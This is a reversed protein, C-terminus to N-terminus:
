SPIVKTIAKAATAITDLAEKIISPIPTTTTTKTTTTTLTTAPPALIAKTTSPPSPTATAPDNYRIVFAKHKEIKQTKENFYMLVLQWQATYLEELLAKYIPDKEYPAQIRDGAAYRVTIHHKGIRGAFGSEKLKEGMRDLFTSRFNLVTYNAKVGGSCRFPTRKFSLGSPAWTNKRESYAEKVKSFAAFPDPVQKITQPKSLTVHLGAWAPNHEWFNGCPEARVMWAGAQKPFPCGGVVCSAIGASVGCRWASEKKVSPCQPGAEISANSGLKPMLGGSTIKRPVASAGRMSEKKPVPRTSTKGANKKKSAGPALADSAPQRRAREARAASSTGEEALAAGGYRGSQVKLSATEKLKSVDFRAGLAFRPLCGLILAYRRM